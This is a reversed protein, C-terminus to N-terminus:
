SPACKRKRLSGDHPSGDCPSSASGSGLTGTDKEQVSVNVFGVGQVGGSFVFPQCTLTFPVLLTTPSILQAHGAISYHTGSPAATATTATAGIMLLM